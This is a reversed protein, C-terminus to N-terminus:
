KNVNEPCSCYCKVLVDRDDESSSNRKSVEEGNLLRHLDKEDLEVVVYCLDKSSVIM